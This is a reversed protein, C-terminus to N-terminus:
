APPQRAPLSTGPDPQMRCATIGQIACREDDDPLHGSVGVAGVIEGLQDRVLVGGPVPVVNGEGLAVVANIFHPHTEARRAISRSGMGLNLAGHAKGRAIRERLLSAGDERGFTMLHGGADLVAVSMPPFDHARAFTM